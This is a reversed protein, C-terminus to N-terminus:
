ARPALTLAADVLASQETAHKRHSGTAPAAAPPRGIYRPRVGIADTMWEDLMPWAGMNRPEEQCWVIEVQDRCSALFLRIAGSPFPYLQEMRLLAVDTIGRERRAELLDYYVKGSCFVVRQAEDPAVEDDILLQHFTGTALEHLSSVALPHRLLSKPSMHILPKRVKMLGQRRLLHFFSSPTTCNAVIINDEACLQLFRELRASSHEAGQGEYGHPLLLGVGSCRNWKQETAMIFNDIIVQAGNAFDGFQAEWLVLADPYELSYGYEFGLVAAESLLSDFVEVRAQHTSLHDLPTYEEGTQIDTLIAHRHSFTGRASDQGSLRVRLGQAALTAFAAQEGVAWDVPREGRVMELRQGLLRQIKRHAQFGEPLTNARILLDQLKSLPFSSDVTDRVTGTGLYPAWPKALPSDLNADYSYPRAPSPGNCLLDLRAASDAIVTRIEDTTVDAYRADIREAYVQLPPPRKRIADYLLPQTFSPEDGENHGHKRYCYMDIVVDQQFTQHWDAALTAVAAVADPDEGNVHFIPVALMRAVDTAYPTSRADKPATTFGIQNNVIVHITGGAQYGKLDSLNLTECVLGQGAFAADGHILLPMVREHGVDHQRDQRARCRGEVVPDVAELHSPNFALSLQIEKGAGTRYTSTYGLHYKVDGSGAFTLEAQDLFEDIMQKVPKGLINALVNLRGRHSMGVIIADVGRAAVGEVVLDLLPILTEAGELSFRKTGPFRTHLMSEFHQADAMLRLEKLLEAKGLIRRDQLTEIREQLWARKRPEGINMFEVGFGGCYAARLRHVLQRLTTIEPVGFVGRGSCPHDLDEEGLGYYELTLEPHPEREHRGLPDIDAETHGRVRYANIMMMIKAQREAAAMLAAGHDAVPRAGGHFISRPPFTLVVGAQAGAARGAGAFLAAWDSSISDPDQLWDRYRADVWAANDGTLLSDLQSPLAASHAVSCDDTAM